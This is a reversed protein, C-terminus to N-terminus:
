KKNMLGEGGGDGGGGKQTATRSAPPLKPWNGAHAGSPRPTRLSTPFLTTCTVAAPPLHVKLSPPTEACPAVSLPVM